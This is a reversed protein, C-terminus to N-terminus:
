EPIRKLGLIITPQQIVYPVDDNLDIGTFRRVPPFEKVCLWLEDNKWICFGLGEIKRAKTQESASLSCPFSSTGWFYTMTLVDASFTLRSFPVVNGDVVQWVGQLRDLEEKAAPKWSLYCPYRATTLLTERWQSDKLAALKERLAEIDEANLLPPLLALSEKLSEMRVHPPGLSESIGEGVILPQPVRELAGKFNHPSFPLVNKCEAPNVYALSLFILAGNLLM